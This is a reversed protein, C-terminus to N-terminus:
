GRAAGWAAAGPDPEHASTVLRGDGVLHGRHTCREVFGAKFSEVYADIARAADEERRGAIWEELALDVFAEIESAWGRLWIELLPPAANAQWTPSALLEDLAVWVSRAFRMAGDVSTQLLPPYPTTNM